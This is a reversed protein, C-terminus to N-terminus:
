HQGAISALRRQLTKRERATYIRRKLENRLLDEAADRRRLKLLCDSARLVLFAAEEDEKREERELYALATELAAAPNHKRQLYLDMLMRVARAQDPRASLEERLEACAEEVRGAAIKGQIPSLNSAPEKLRASPYFIGGVWSGIRDLLWTYAILMFGGGICLVAGLFYLIVTVIGTGTKLRFFIWLGFGILAGCVIWHTLVPLTRFIKKGSASIM